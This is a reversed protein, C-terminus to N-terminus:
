GTLQDPAARAPERKLSTLEREFALAVETMRIRESESWALKRRLEQAEKIMADIQRTLSQIADPTTM